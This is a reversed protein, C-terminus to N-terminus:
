KCNGCCKKNEKKKSEQQDKKKAIEEPDTPTRYTIVQLWLKLEPYKSNFHDTIEAFTALADFQHVFVEIQTCTGNAGGLGIIEGVHHVNDLEAGYAQLEKIDEKNM